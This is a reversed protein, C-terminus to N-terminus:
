RTGEPIAGGQNGPVLMNTPEATLGSGFTLRRPSAAGSLDYIWINQGTADELAVALQKGDPAVRPHNYLGPPLQIPSRKGSRDVMALVRSGSIKQVKQVFQTGAQKPISAIHTYDDTRNVTVHTGYTHGLSYPVM